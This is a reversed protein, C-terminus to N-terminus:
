VACTLAAQGGFVRERRADNPQIEKRIRELAPNLREGKRDTEPGKQGLLINGKVFQYRKFIFFGAVALLLAFIIQSIM